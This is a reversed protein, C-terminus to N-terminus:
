DHASKLSRCPCSGPCVRATCSELWTLYTQVASVVWELDKRLSSSGAINRRNLSNAPCLDSTQSGLILSIGPVFRGFLAKPLNIPFLKCRQERNGVPLCGPFQVLIERVTRPDSTRRDVGIKEVHCGM